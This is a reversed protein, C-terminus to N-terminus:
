ELLKEIVKLNLPKGIYGKIVPYLAAIKKNIADISSSVIYNDFQQKVGTPLTEFKELFDWATMQPMDIDLLLVTHKNENPSYNKQIFDLGERPNTFSIIESEGVAHQIAKENLYNILPDDDILLFRLYTQM